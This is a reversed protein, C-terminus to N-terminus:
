LNECNFWVSLLFHVLIVYNHFCVIAKLTTYHACEHNIAVFLACNGFKPTHSDFSKLFVTKELHTSFEGM